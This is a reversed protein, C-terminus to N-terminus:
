KEDRAAHFKADTKDELTDLDSARQAVRPGLHQVAPSQRLPSLESARSFDEGHVRRNCVPQGGEFTTLFNGV